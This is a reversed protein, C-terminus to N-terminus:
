EKTLLGAYFNEEEDAFSQKILTEDPVKKTFTIEHQDIAAAIEQTVDYKAGTITIVGNKEKYNQTAYFRNSLPSWLVRIPRAM